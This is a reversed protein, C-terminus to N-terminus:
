FYSYLPSYLVNFFRIRQFFSIEWIFIGVNISFVSIINIVLLNNSSILNTYYFMSIVNIVILDTSSNHFIFIFTFSILGIFALILGSYSFLSNSKKFIYQFPYESM